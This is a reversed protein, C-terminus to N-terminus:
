QDTSQWACHQYIPAAQLTLPASRDLLGRCVMMIMVSCIMLELRWSMITLIAACPNGSEAEADRCESGRIWDGFAARAEAAHPSLALQQEDM